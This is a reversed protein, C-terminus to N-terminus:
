SCSSQSLASAVAAQKTGKERAALVESAQRIIESNKLLYEKVIREIQERSQAAPEASWSLPPMLLFALAHISGRGIRFGSIM